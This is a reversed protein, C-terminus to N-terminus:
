LRLSLDRLFLPAPSSPPDPGDSFAAEERPAAKCFPLPPAEPSTTYPPIPAVDAMPVAEPADWHACACAPEPKESEGCCPPEPSADCAAPMELPCPACACSLSARAAPGALLLLAALLSNRAFTL